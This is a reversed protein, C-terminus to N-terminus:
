YAIGRVGHWYCEMGEEALSVIGRPATFPSVRLSSVLAALQPVKWPMVDWAVLDRERALVMSELLDAMEQSDWIGERRRVARLVDICRRQIVLDDCSTCVLTVAPVLNADFAFVPESEFFDRRVLAEARLLIEDASSPRLDDSFSKLELLAAWVAQEMSLTMIRHQDQKPLARMDVRSRFLDFRDCWNRYFPAVSDRYTGDDDQGDAYLSPDIPMEDSSAPSSDTQQQQEESLYIRTSWETEIHFLSRAAATVSEFPTAPDQVELKPTLYFYLQPIVDAGVYTAVDQGLKSLMAAIDYFFGSRERGDDRAAGDGGTSAHGGSLQRLSTLLACGSQLHRLAESYRGLLTEICIFIVCCTLIVEMNSNSPTLTFDKIHHIALNYQQISMEELGHVSGHSKFRKHAGGLACIAYKIPEVAHGLPLAHMYWFDNPTLATGLDHITCTRFHHFLDMESPLRSADLTPGPALALPSLPVMKNRIALAATTKIATNTRGESPPSEAKKSKAKRGVIAEYGDCVHGDKECRRCHPKGEDCKLHRIRNPM